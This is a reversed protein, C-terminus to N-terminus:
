LSVYGGAKKKPQSEMIKVIGEKILNQYNAASVPGASNAYPTNNKMMVMAPLTPMKFYQALKGHEKDIECKYVDIKGKFQKEFEEFVKVIDQVSPLTESYFVIIFTRSSQLVGDIMTDNLKKLM